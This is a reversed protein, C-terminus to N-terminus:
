SIVMPVSVVQLISINNNKKRQQMMVKDNLNMLCNLNRQNKHKEKPICLAGELL